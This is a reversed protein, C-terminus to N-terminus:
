VMSKNIPFNFNFLDLGWGSSETPRIKRSSKRQGHGEVIDCSFEHDFTTVRLPAIIHTFLGSEEKQSLECWRSVSSGPSQIGRDGVRQGASLLCYACAVDCIPRLLEVRVQALSCNSTTHEPTQQFAAQNARSLDSIM